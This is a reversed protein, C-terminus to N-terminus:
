VLLPHFGFGGKYHGAALEKETHAKIPKSDFELVVRQPAAGAQWARERDRERERRILDIQREGVSLM